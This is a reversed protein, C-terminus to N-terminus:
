PVSVRGPIAPTMRVIPIATSVLTRTKSRIRSSNRAPFVTGEATAAPKLLASLVTISVCAVVMTAANKEEMKDAEVVRAALEALIMPVAETTTIGSQGAACKEHQWPEVADAVQVFNAQVLRLRDLEALTTAAAARIIKVAERAFATALDNALVPSISTGRANMTGILDESTTRGIKQAAEDIWDSM